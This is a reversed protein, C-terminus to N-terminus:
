CICDHLALLVSEWNGKYKELNTEYHELCENEATDGLCYESSVDSSYGQPSFRASSASM